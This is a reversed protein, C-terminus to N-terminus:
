KEGSTSVKAEAKPHLMYKSMYLAQLLAFVITIGICSIKFNVWAHMSYHYAIILNVVGLTLFFLSWANNVKFWIRRPLQIKDGLMRELLPQHQFYQSLFLVVAFVWYVLTPKWQLFIPNHFILTSGGLVAVVLFIFLQTRDFQGNRVRHFLLQVGSALILIATAVYLGYLKFGIFFFVIPFLDFLIQKM